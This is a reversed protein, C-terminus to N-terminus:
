KGWRRVRGVDLHVFDSRTYLGVGGGKVALAAKHIDKVDVGPIRIDIAKGQMHLSKKAVKSSNRRLKENTAPSRYASIVHFPNKTGLATRVDYLLNLLEPNMTYVEGNHHDRLLYNVDSMETAVFQNDSFFTTSLSEGTHLHLFDLQKEAHTALPMAQASALPAPVQMQNIQSFANPALSLGTFGSLTRLFKRRSHFQKSM